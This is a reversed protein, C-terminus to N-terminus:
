QVVPHAEALTQELSKANKPKREPASKYSDAKARAEDREKKRAEKAAEKEAERKLVHSFLDDMDMDGLAERIIQASEDYGDKKKLDRKARGIEDQWAKTDLGLDKAKTRIEARKDNLKQSEEDCKAYEVAMAQIDEKLKSLNHGVEGM